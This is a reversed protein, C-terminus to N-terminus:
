LRRATEGTAQEYRALLVSAYQPDIEMLRAARGLQECALLTSGSGAFPDYV